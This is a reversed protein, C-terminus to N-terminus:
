KNGSSGKITWDNGSSDKITQGIFGTGKPEPEGPRLRLLGRNMQLAMACESDFEQHLADQETQEFARHLRGGNAIDEDGIKGRILWQAKEQADIELNPCHAVVGSVYGLHRAVAIDDPWLTKNWPSNGPPLPQRIFGGPKPEPEGPRLRLLGRYQLFVLACEPDLEQERAAREQDEFDQRLRGGNGIDDDRVKALALLRAKERADIELNPCLSITGSLYGLHRAVAIDDPWPTNNWTSQASVATPLLLGLLISPIRIPMTKRGQKVSQV